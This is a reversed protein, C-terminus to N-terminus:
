ANGPLSSLPRTTCRWTTVVPQPPLPSLNLTVWLPWLGRQSKQQWGRGCGFLVPSVRVAEDRDTFVYGSTALEPLVILSAGKAAATRLAIRIREINGAVDGLVIEPSVTAVRLTRTGRETGAGRVTHDTTKQQPWCGVSRHWTVM